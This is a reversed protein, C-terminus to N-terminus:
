SARIGVQALTRADVFADLWADLQDLNTCGEVVAVTEAPLDGFRRRLLRLLTKRANILEGRLQGEERFMDAITKRMAQVERQRRETRVAHEIRDQMEAHEGPDREHYVLAHLYSLLGQWRPRQVAPMEELARVVSELLTRFETSPTRRGQVLRLVQGFPGSRALRGAPTERLNVFLPELQPALGAFRGGGALLDAVQGVAAWPRLGTYFVIPLVPMLELGTLTEHTQLWERAQARYIAMVYELLRLPMFRDPETQHELLIYLWLATLTRRRRQRVGCRLVLDSELHRYDRQVYTTPDPQVRAYDIDDTYECRAVTLLDHLNLPEQLLLKMGNEPFQRAYDEPRPATM